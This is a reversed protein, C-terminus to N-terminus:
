DNATFPEFLPLLASDRAKVLEATVDLSGGKPIPQVGLLQDAIRWGGHQDLGPLLGVSSSRGQDPHARRRGKLLHGNQDPDGEVGKRAEVGAVAEIIEGQHGVHGGLEVHPDSADFPASALEGLLLSDFHPREADVEGGVLDGDVTPGPLERM